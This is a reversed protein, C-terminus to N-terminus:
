FFFQNTAGRRSMLPRSDFLGSLFLKLLQSNPQIQKDQSPPPLLGWCVLFVLHPARMAACCKTKSIIPGQYSTQTRDAGIDKDVSRKYSLPYHRKVYTPKQGVM